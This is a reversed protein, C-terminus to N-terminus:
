VINITGTQRIIFWENIKIYVIKINSGIGSFQCYGAPASVSSGLRITHSGQAIFRMNDADVCIGEFPQGLIPDAPLKLYVEATAGENTFYKSTDGSVIQYPDGVGNTKPTVILSSSSVLSNLLSM